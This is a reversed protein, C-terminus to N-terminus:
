EWDMEDETFPAKPQMAMVDAYTVSRDGVNESDEDKDGNLLDIHGKHQKQPAREGPKLLIVSGTAPDIAIRSKEPGGQRPSKPAHRSATLGPLFRLREEVTGSLDLMSTDEGEKPRIYTSEILLPGHLAQRILLDSSLRENNPLVSSLAVIDNSQAKTALNNDNTLLTVPCRYHMKLYRFILHAVLPNYLCCSLISDDGMSDEDMTETKKQGKVAGNSDRIAEQAWRIAERALPSIRKGSVTKTSSKLGDV